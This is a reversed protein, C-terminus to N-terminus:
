IDYDLMRIFGYFTSVNLLVFNVICGCLEAVTIVLLLVANREEFFFKTVILYNSIEM